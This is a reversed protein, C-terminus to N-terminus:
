VEVCGSLPIASPKVPGTMASPVNKPAAAPRTSSCGSAELLGVPRQTQSLGLVDSGTQPLRQTQCGEAMM